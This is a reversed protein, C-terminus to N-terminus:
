KQSFFFFSSAKSIWSTPLTAPNDDIADKRELVNAFSSCSFSSHFDYKRRSVISSWIRATCYRAM